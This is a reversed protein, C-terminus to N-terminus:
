IVPPGVWGQDLEPELLQAEFCDFVANNGVAPEEVRYASRGLKPQGAKLLWSLGPCFITTYLRIDFKHTALFSLSGNFSSITNSEFYPM